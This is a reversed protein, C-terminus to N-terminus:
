HKSLHWILSTPLPALGLAGFAAVQAQTTLTTNGSCVIAGAPSTNAALVVAIMAMLVVGTTLITRFRSALSQTLKPAKRDIGGELYSRDGLVVGLRNAQAFRTTPSEDTGAGGRQEVGVCM